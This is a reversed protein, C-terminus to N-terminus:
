AVAALTEAVAPVNVPAVPETTAVPETATTDADHILGVIRRRPAITVSGDLAASVAALDEAIKARLEADTRLTPADLGNVIADAQEVLADLDVNKGGFLDKYSKAFESLGEVASKTIIKKEGAEDPLMQNRLREVLKAFEEAFAQEALGVAQSFQAAVRAQEIAYQAPNLEQLYDPPEVNVVEWAVGFQGVLSSPYNAANFLTGLKQRAEEKMAPYVAELEGVAADLQMRIESMDNTFALLKNRNLLRIGYEPFPLTRSKWTLRLLGKIRSLAKYEARKTDILKKSASMTDGEAGFTHAAQAVQDRDLSKRVGLWTFALRLACSESQLTESVAM